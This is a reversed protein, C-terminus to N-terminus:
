HRRSGAFLAVPVEWGCSPSVGFHERIASSAAAFCERLAEIEHEGTRARRVWLDFDLPISWHELAEIELDVEAAMGIWEEVTYDRVHTPDRLLEIQNLFRDKEPDSPAVTDILVFRGYRKLVRGVGMLAAGLNVWHHASQRSIVLDFSRSEFPLDESSGLEFRVNGLGREDALRRAQALMAETPDLGVVESCHEAFLLAAHGPGCGLDLVYEHGVVRGAALMAQLDPGNAHYEFAAYEAASPGFQEDVTRQSM